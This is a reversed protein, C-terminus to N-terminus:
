LAIRVNIHTQKVLRSRTMHDRTQRTKCPMPGWLWSSLQCDGGLLAFAYAAQLSNRIRTVILM